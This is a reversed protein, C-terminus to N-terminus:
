AQERSASLTQSLEERRRLIADVEALQQPTNISLVDEAPVAEIVEVHEGEDLIMAFVDTLYYEGKANDNRLRSLLDFLREARFCYYSPNVERIALEGASAEKHEVIREFRGSAGRIIRGYGTPDGIVATALTAAAGSRRHADILTRLTQERILPGDGALVLVDGLWSEFCSKAQMVAHGTGLQPEQVAYHLDEDDGAFTERV